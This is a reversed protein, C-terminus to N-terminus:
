DGFEVLYGSVGEFPDGNGLSTSLQARRYSFLTVCCVRTADWKGGHDFATIMWHAYSAGSGREYGTWFLKGKRNSQMGDPGTVWRWEGRSTQKGGLYTVDPYEKGFLGKVIFQYEREDDITALYGHKGHFRLRSASMRAKQWTVNPAAVYQYAHGNPGEIVGTSKITAFSPASRGGSKEGLTARYGLSIIACAALAFALIELRGIWNQLQRKTKCLKPM